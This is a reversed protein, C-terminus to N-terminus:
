DSRCRFWEAVGWMDPLLNCENRMDSVRGVAQPETGVTLPGKQAHRPPWSTMSMGNCEQMVKRGIMVLLWEEAHTSRRPFTLTSIPFNFLQAKGRLCEIGADFGGDRFTISALFPVMEREM